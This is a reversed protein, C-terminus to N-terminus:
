YNTVLYLNYIDYTKHFIYYFGLFAPLQYTTCNCNFRSKPVRSHHLCLDALLLALLPFLLVLFLLDPKKFRDISDLIDIDFCEVM